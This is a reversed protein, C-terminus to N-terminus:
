KQQSSLTHIQNLVKEAAELRMEDILKNKENDRATVQNKNQTYTRYLQIGYLQASKKPLTIQYRISYTLESEAPDLETNLSLIRTKVNEDLLKLQPQNETNVLDIRRSEYDNRFARYLPTYIDDAILSFGTLTSATSSAHDPAPEGRLHWGCSPLLLICSLITFARFFTKLYM